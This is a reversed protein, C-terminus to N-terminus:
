DKPALGHMALWGGQQPISGLDKDPYSIVGTDSEPPGWSGEGFNQRCPAKWESPVESLESGLSIRLAVKCVLVITFDYRGRVTGCTAVGEDM